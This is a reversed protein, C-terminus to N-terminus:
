KKILECTKGIKATYWDIYDKIKAKLNDPTKEMLPADIFGLILPCVRYKMLLEITPIHETKVAIHFLSNDFDFKLNPNAGAEILFKISDVKKDEVALSLPTAGFTNKEDLPSGKEIVFKLLEIDDIAQHTLTNDFMGRDNKPDITKNEIMKKIEEYNSSFILGSTNLKELNNNFPPINKQEKKFSACGSVLLALFIITKM